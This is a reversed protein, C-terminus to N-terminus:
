LCGWNGCGVMCLGRRRKARRMMMRRGMRAFGRGSGSDLVSERGAGSAIASGVVSMAARVAALARTGLSASGPVLIRSTREASHVM